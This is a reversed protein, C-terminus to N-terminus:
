SSTLRQIHGYRFALESAVTHALMFESAPDVIMGYDRVPGVCDIDTSSVNSCYLNNSSVSGM